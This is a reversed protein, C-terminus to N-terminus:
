RNMSIVRPMGDGRNASEAVMQKRRERLLDLLYHRAAAVNRKFFEVRAEDMSTMRSDVLRLGERPSWLDRRAMALAREAQDLQANARALAADQELESLPDGMPMSPPTAPQVSPLGSSGIQRTELIRAGTDPPVDSFTVTGKADVSKYLVNAQAALPLLTSVVLLCARLM